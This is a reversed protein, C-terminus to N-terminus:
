APASMIHLHRLAKALLRPWSAGAIFACGLLMLMIFIPASMVSSQDLPQSPDASDYRLEIVQQNGANTIESQLAGGVSTRVLQGSQTTFQVGLNCLTQTQHTSSDYANYCQESLVRARVQIESGQSLFVILAILVLLLGLCVFVTRFFRAQGKTM